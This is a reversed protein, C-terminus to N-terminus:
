TECERGRTLLLNFTSQAIKHQSRSRSNARVDAAHTHIHRATTCTIRVVEERLTENTTPLAHAPSGHAAVCCTQLSTRRARHAQERWTAHLMAPEAGMSSPHTPLGVVAASCCECQDRETVCEHEPCVQKRAEFMNYSEPAVVNGELTTKLQAPKLCM